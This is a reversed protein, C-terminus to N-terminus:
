HDDAYKWNLMNIYKHASRWFRALTVNEAESKVRPFGRAVGLNEEGFGFIKQEKIESQFLAQM